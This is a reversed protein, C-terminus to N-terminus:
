IFETPLKESVVLSQGKDVVKVQYQIVFKAVVPSLSDKDVEKTFLYSFSYKRWLRFFKSQFM